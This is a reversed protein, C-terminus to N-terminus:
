EINKVQERIKEIESKVQIVGQSIRFDSAKSGITNIERHLEQAIFDLKKGIENRSHLCKKFSRTHGKIRTIEEQIDCNKAFIAVETELRTKDLEKGNSLDKVRKALRNRYQATNVESRKKIYVLAKEINSVRKVMDKSLVMGEHLRDKILKDLAKEIAERLFPWFREEGKNEAQYSILGPYSIIDEFRIEGKLKLFRKLKLLQNYYRRAAKENISIHVERNAGEDYVVSVSVKGRKIKRQILARIKDEFTYFKDPLRNTIDFFKNNLARMEVKLRGSKSRLTAQGFGTM